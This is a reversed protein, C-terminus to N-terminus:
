EQDICPGPGTKEESGYSCLNENDTDMIAIELGTLIACQIPSDEINSVLLRNTRESIIMSGALHLLTM